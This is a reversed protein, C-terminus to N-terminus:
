GLEKEIGARVKQLHKKTEQYYMLLQRRNLEINSLDLLLQNKVAPPLELPTQISRPYGNADFEMHPSLIANYPPYFNRYFQAPAYGEELKSLVSYYYAYLQIIDRRLTDNQIIELGLSQLTEYGSSNQINVFDRLLMFQYVRFTDMSVSDGRIIDRWYACAKIGLEHGMINEDMDREDLLLGNSIEALIKNAARQERRNDNWNDLAFAAVVAIFISLFEFGYRRWKYRTKM